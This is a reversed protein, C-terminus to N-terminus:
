RVPPHSGRRERAIASLTCKSSPSSALEGTRPAPPLPATPLPPALPASVSSGCSGGDMNAVAEGERAAQANGASAVPQDWGEATRQMIREKCREQFERLETLQSRTKQWGSAIRQLECNIMTLADGSEPAGSCAMSLAPVNFVPNTRITGAIAEGTPVPVTTAESGWCGSSGDKEQGQSEVSCAKQTAPQPAVPLSASLAESSLCRKSTSSSSPTMIPHGSAEQVIVPPPLVLEPSEDPLEAFKQQTPTSLAQGAHLETVGPNELGTPLSCTTAASSGKAAAVSAEAAALLSSLAVTAHLHLQLLVPAGCQFQVNLRAADAQLEVM